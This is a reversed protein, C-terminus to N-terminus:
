IKSYKLKKTKICCVLSNHLEKNYLNIRDETIEEGEPGFIGNPETTEFANLRHARSRM